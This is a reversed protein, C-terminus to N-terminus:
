ISASPSLVRPAIAIPIKRRFTALLEPGNNRPSGVKRHLPSTRLAGDVAPRLLSASDGEIEGLWAPWDDSELIVPMRNHLEAM